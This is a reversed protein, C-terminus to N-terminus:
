GYVFDVFGSQKNFKDKLDNDPFVGSCEYEYNCWPKSEPIRDDGSELLRGHTKIDTFGGGILFEKMTILFYVTSDCVCYLYLRNNKIEYRYRM